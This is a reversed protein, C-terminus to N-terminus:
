PQMRKKVARLAQRITEMGKKGLGHLAALKAESTAALQDLTTIGAGALARLAPRSLGAPLTGRVSDALADAAKRKAPNTMLECREKKLTSLRESSKKAPRKRRSGGKVPRPM